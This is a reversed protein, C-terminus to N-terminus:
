PTAADKCCRFGTSYDHYKPEHGVTTFDCGHGQEIRTSFFGGMFVGHGRHRLAAARVGPFLRVTRVLGIGARDSIWEHVNGVMDYAGVDNTCEAHSGTPSLFGPEQNLRPNNFNDYTWLRANTGFWMSLLHPKGSNCKGREYSDGYPYTLNKTGRCAGYWESATCLRKGANQCAADSDLQSIYAQPLVGPKSRAEYNRGKEPAAHAPHSIESGDSLREVLVAEYRDVCFNAMRAMEPPCGNIDQAKAPESETGTPRPALVLISGNGKSKSSSRHIAMPQSLEAATAGAKARATNCGAMVGSSVLLAIGGSTSILRGAKM